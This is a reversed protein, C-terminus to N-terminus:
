VIQRQLKGRIREAMSQKAYYLGARCGSGAVLAHGQGGHVGRWQGLPYGVLADVPVPDPHRGAFAPQSRGRDGPM